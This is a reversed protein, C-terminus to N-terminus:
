KVSDFLLTSSLSILGLSAVAAAARKSPLRDRELSNEINYASQLITYASLLSAPLKPDTDTYSQALITGALSLLFAAAATNEALKRKKDREFSNKVSYFAQSAALLIFASALAKGTSTEVTEDIQEIISNHEQTEQSYTVNQQYSIEQKKTPMISAAPILITAASISRIKSILPTKEKELM